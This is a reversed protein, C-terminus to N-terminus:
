EGRRTTAGASDDSPKEATVPAPVRWVRVTADFGGSALFRGDSSFVISRIYSSHGWLRALLKGTDAQWVYVVNTTPEGEPITGPFDNRAAAVVRGDPSLGVDMIVGGAAQVSRIREGSGMDLM